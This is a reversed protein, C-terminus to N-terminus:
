KYIKLYPNKNSDFHQDNSISWVIIVIFNIKCFFSFSASLHYVHLIQHNKM